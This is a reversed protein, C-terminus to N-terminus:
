APVKTVSWLTIVFLLSHNSGPDFQLVHWLRLIVGAGKFTIDPKSKEATSQLLNNDDTFSLSAWLKDVKEAIYTKRCFKLIFQLVKWYVLFLSIKNNVVSCLYLVSLLSHFVFPVFKVYWFLKARWVLPWSQFLLCAKTKKDPFVFPFHFCFPTCLYYLPIFQSLASTIKEWSSSLPFNFM